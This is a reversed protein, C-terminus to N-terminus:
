PFSIFRLTLFRVKHHPGQRTCEASIRILGRLQATRDSNHADKLFKILICPIRRVSLSIESWVACDSRLKRKACKGYPVNVGNRNLHNYKFCKEIVTKTWYIIPIMKGICSLLNRLMHKRQPILVIHGSCHSFSDKPMLPWRFGLDALADACYSWPRRQGSVSDNSM